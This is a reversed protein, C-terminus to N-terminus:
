RKMQRLCRYKDHLRTGKTNKYLRDFTYIKICNLNLCVLSEAAIAFLFFAHKREMALSAMFSYSRSCIIFFAYCLANFVFPARKACLFTSNAICTIFIYIGTVGFQIRANVFLFWCVPYRILSAVSFIFNSFSVSFLPRLFM